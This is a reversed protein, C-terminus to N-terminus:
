WKLEDISFVPGDTCVCRHGEKTDEVCCLCAGLGCAMRNELSVECGIGKERAYRAVSVMMPKPGCTFIHDFNEGLVSHDTVYGKEGLSADETTYEVRGLAEYESRLYLDKASRAGILIVFDCGREKLEQALYYLPASGVGGGVLLYRKGAAAPVNFGNGLPMLTNVKDGAKLSGLWRTGDGVIQVLFGVENKGSDFSHVSIPRRLVVTPTNDIRLEAFQGPRTDPLPTDSRMVLLVCNANVERVEKITLDVLVKKM